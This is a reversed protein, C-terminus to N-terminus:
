VRQAVDLQEALDGLQGGGADSELAYAADELELVLGCGQAAAVTLAAGADGIALASELGGEVGQLFSAGVEGHQALRSRDAREAVRKSRAPRPPSPQTGLM